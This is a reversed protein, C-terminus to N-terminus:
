FQSHPWQRMRQYIKGKASMKFFNQECVEKETNMFRFFIVMSFSINVMKEIKFGCGHPVKVIIM